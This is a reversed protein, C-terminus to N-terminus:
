SSLAKAKAQDFTYGKLDPNYKPRQRDCAAVLYEHGIEDCLDWVRYLEAM